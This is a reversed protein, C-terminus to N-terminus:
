ARETPSHEPCDLTSAALPRIAYAVGVVFLVVQLGVLLADLGVGEDFSDPGIPGFGLGNALVFNVALILGALAAAAVLVGLVRRWWRSHAGGVVIVAATCILIVGVALEVSEIVYGWTSAHPIVTSNLFHRYWPAAQKEREHLDQALGAPFDGRVLKTLGSALWEYGIIAQLVFFGSAATVNARM